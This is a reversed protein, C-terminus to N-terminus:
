IAKHSRTIVYRIDYVECAGDAEIWTAAGNAEWTGLTYGTVTFSVAREIGAGKPFSFQRQYLPGQGGGIDFWIDITSTGAATPKAKMDCTITLGDGNRGTIVTGDYFSVVDSPKQSDITNGANNPLLVATDTVLVLPAISTLVTDAYQAWGTHQYNEIFNANIADAADSWLTTQEINARAM